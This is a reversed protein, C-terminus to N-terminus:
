QRLLALESEVLKNAIRRNDIHYNGTALREKLTDIKEQRTDPATSAARYAETRLLADASVSVKDGASPAAAASPTQHQAAKLAGAERTRLSLDSRGLQTKYAGVTTLNVAM